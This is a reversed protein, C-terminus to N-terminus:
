IGESLFGETLYNIPYIMTSRMKIWNEKKKFDTEKDLLFIRDIEIRDMTIVDEPYDQYREEGQHLLYIAMKFRDLNFKGDFQIEDSGLNSYVKYYQIM